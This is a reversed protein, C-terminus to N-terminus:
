DITGDLESGSEIEGAIKQTGLLNTTDDVAPSYADGGPQDWGTFHILFDNLLAFDVEAPTFEILMKARFFPYLETGMYTYKTVEPTGERVDMGAACLVDAGGNITAYLGVNLVNRISRWVHRLPPYATDRDNKGGPPRMYDFMVILNSNLRSSSMREEKESDIYISLWPMQHRGAIELNAPHKFLACLNEEGLDGKIAADCLLAIADLSADVNEDTM